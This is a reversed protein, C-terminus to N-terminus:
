VAGARKIGMHSPTAARRRESRRSHSIALPLSQAILTQLDGGPDTPTSPEGDCRAGRMQIRRGDASARTGTTKQAPTEKRLLVFCNTEGLLLFVKLPPPPSSMKPYKNSGTLPHTDNFPQHKFYLPMQHNSLMNCVIDILLDLSSHQAEM